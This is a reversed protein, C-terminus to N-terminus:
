AQVDSIQPLGAMCTRLAATSEEPCSYGLTYNLDTSYIEISDRYGHIRYTVGTNFSIEMTFLDSPTNFNTTGQTVFPNRKVFFKTKLFNAAKNIAERDTTDVNISDTMNNAMGSFKLRTIKDTSMHTFWQALYPGDQMVMRVIHANDDDPYLYHKGDETVVVYGYRNDGAPEEQFIRFGNEALEWKDAPIVATVYDIRDVGYLEQVVKGQYLLISGLITVIEGSSRGESRFQYIVTESPIEVYLDRGSYSIWYEEKATKLYTCWGCSGISPNTGWDDQIVSIELSKLKKLLETATDKSLPIIEPEYLELSNYQFELTKKDHQFFDFQFALMQDLQMNQFASQFTKWQAQTGILITKAAENSDEPINCWEGYTKETQQGSSASQGTSAQNQDAPHFATLMLCCLIASILAKGQRKM